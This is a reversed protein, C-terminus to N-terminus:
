LPWHGVVAYFAEATACCYVTIEALLFLEFRPQAASLPLARLQYLSM